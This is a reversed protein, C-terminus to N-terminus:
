RAFYHHINLGLGSLVMMVAGAFLVVSLAFVKVRPGPQSEERFGKEYYRVLTTWIPPVGPTFTIATRESLGLVEEPKLLRRGSQQWNESSTVSYSTSSNNGCDPTQRTRGRSVGGSRVIITEDGLRASVYEATPYDNVGFFVQTTNSLLTQDQGDPWCAKLQGLSQYFFQLRVGYGRYKDLADDVAEMHGLSAAEDLLFHVKNKPRLGGKVVARLLTGIWMRMLPSQARMHEPPLVLYVTMKGKLLDAPDFSSSKTSEAIALTDLFRLFRGVSTLCSGLENDKFYTLQNGLRSLMRGWATSQRMVQIAAELEEPDALIGRVTQLSRDEPPAHQVVFAIIGGIFMEAADCWHPEREQGTRIVLANALDRCDDLALPSDARIFDLPNLSDPKEIVMQFPDLLVVKHGFQQERVRASILANEGKPDVVVTSERCTLLHSFVFSVNKGAATPAFIASHVPTIRVLPNTREGWFSLCAVLSTVRLDFIKSFSHKQVSLRGLLLGTSAVLDSEDAWRATGHATLQSLQKRSQKILMAVLLVVGVWRLVLVVWCAYLLVSLILLLRCIPMM